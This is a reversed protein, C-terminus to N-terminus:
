IIRWPPFNGLRLFVRRLKVYFFLWVCVCMSPRLFKVLEMHVTALGGAAGRRTRRTRGLRNPPCMKLINLM